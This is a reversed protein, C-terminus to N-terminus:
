TLFADKVLNTAYTIFYVVKLSNMEVVTFNNM